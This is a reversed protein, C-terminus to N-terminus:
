KADPKGLPDMTVVDLNSMAAPVMLLAAAANAAVQTAAAATAPCVSCPPDAVRSLM